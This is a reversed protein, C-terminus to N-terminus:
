QKPLNILVVDSNERSREFVIHKGDPTIDFGPTVDFRGLRGQDSLSTLQRTKKTAIDLLWFDLSQNRPLYVLGTGNPLFRQGGPRVQLGPLEVRAGDPRVALLPAVQGTVLAGGYVILKGDPSWVPNAAPGSVLRVPAGGDVPIKFLGPGGRADSGGTVIWSGDPSSDIGGRVDISEALGRLGTGDASMIAVRRRRTEKAPLVVAVRSGDRSVAPPDFMAGDAGKRIEIAEGGQERWLGGATGRASLYFLSTGGFRPALARAAPVRYPQVDRDEAPRDLIPVRWLSSTPNVITAVVRRGDRSAAVSTYQELGSSARRAAKSEVDVTWLWPGSGDKARAVYLLM